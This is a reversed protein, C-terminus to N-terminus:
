KRILGRRRMDDVIEKATPQRQPAAADVEDAAPTGGNGTAGDGFLETCLKRGLENWDVLPRPPPEAVPPPPLPQPPPQAARAQREAAEKEQLTLMKTQLERLKTLQSETGPVPRGKNAGLLLALFKDLEQSLPKLKCPDDDDEAMTPSGPAKGAAAFLSSDCFPCFVTEWARELCAPNLCGLVTAPRLAVAKRCGSCVITEPIIGGCTPCPAAAPSDKALAVLVQGTIESGGVLPRWLDLLDRQPVRRNPGSLPDHVVVMDGAVEVLVTFHGNPSERQPRHNLIARLQPHQCRKLTRLPDKARLVLASLGRTLADQALLYTRAAENGSPAPTTVKTALEAQSCDLGFSRYVMCLAAAGCLRRSTPDIQKEYPIDLVTGDPM